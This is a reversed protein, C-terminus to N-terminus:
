EDRQDRQAVWRMMILILIALSLMIMSASVAGRLDGRSFSLYINTPLVETKMPTTGAFILVPGFEGLSRAWALTFASVIGPWAQPLAVQTFAQAESAGLALSMRELEPDLQEFTARVIRLAIATCVTFQALVIAPIEYTIGRIGPFGLWQMLQAVQEDLWRGAPTQFLLLLSIGVVLPPLVIPIDFLTEVCHRVFAFLRRLYPQRTYRKVLARSGSRALVYGTPVAVWIALIASITSTTLSLGLAFRLRPEELTRRLDEARAVGLDAVVMALILVLYVMGFAAMTGWFLKDRRVHAPRDAANANPLKAPSM